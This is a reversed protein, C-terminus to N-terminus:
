SYAEELSRKEFIARSEPSGAVFVELDDPVHKFLQNQREVNPSAPSGDFHPGGLDLGLAYITRYGLTYAVQLSAYFVSGVQNLECVVGEKFVDRSFTGGGFALVKGIKWSSGAVYLKGERAMREYFEPAAQYHSTELCVQYAPSDCVKWSRNLGMIPLNIRAIDVNVLSPGNALM